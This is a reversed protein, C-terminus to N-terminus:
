FLFFNAVGYSILTTWAAGVPGHSPILGLNLLVNAVAGVFTRELAICNLKELLLYQGSAVGL